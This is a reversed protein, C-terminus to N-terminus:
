IVAGNWANIIVENEFIYMMLLNINKNTVNTETSYANDQRMSDIGWKLYKDDTDVKWVHYKYTKLRNYNERDKLPFLTEFVYTSGEKSIRNNTMKINKKEEDTIRFIIIPTSAIQKVYPLLRPPNKFGVNNSTLMTSNTQVKGKKNIKLSRSYFEDGGYPENYKEEYQRMATISTRYPGTKHGSDIIDKWYGSMRGPFAQVEVEVLIDGRNKKYLEHVAGIRTKWLNPILNARRYLGKVAIVVHSQLPEEFLKQLENYPIRNASTHNLFRINKQICINHLKGEYKKNMRVFHIRFDDGYNSLIDDEIWKVMNNENTMPYWEQIIGRELFEKQGIYNPPIIMRYERHFDDGWQYTDYLEKFPTASIFIFRNNNEIMHQINLIGSNKLLSSLVQNEKDGCDIEDIIFLTNKTNKLKEIEASKLKGHHFIKDKFCEPLKDKMDNQWDINAMGTLIRTNETPIIFNNDPHTCFLYLLQIMLGDAGIKTKKIVSVARIDSTTFMELINIADEKQTPYIYESTGRVDGELFLRKNRLEQSRYAHEVESRRTNTLEEQVLDDKQM